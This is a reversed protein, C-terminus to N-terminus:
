KGARGLYNQIGVLLGEAIRDQYAPDILLAFEDPHIMFGVEVLCAPMATPRCLALNQYRCALDPFGTADVLSNKLTRAVESSQPHYFYSSTGHEKWPNRGDPLANNHVSVLLDADARVATKVREDLSPGEDESTRTMIVQAGEKELLRKFKLAMQLNVLSERVGSCGISGTESGGHGPDVCIRLGQLSAAGAALRPPHKIRLKLSTNEYEVKYGWQRDGKLAITLEYIGDAPQKWHLHDIMETGAPPDSAQPDAPSIWDTDSTAGYLKLTLKNPKLCQEIQYPLRQNLPLSVYDGYADRGTNVTRVASSPLAATIFPQQGVPPASEFVLEDKDIWVHRNAAYLCRVHRGQWGDALLRVGEALPTTRAQGPGLRVITNQSRTRALWPQGIVTLRAKAPVMIEKTGNRLCFKPTLGNWRDDPAVKYFGIYLDARAAPLRQFVQGYAADLGVNVAQAQPSLCTSKGKRRQGGKPAQRRAAGRAKARLAQSPWLGLKDDDLIVEVKCQPTARVSFEVIDGPLVGKDEAPTISEPILTFRGAPVPEPPMERQVSITRSVDSGLAPGNTLKLTFTNRGPNLPVVHAFYGFRNLRVPQGDVTLSSGPPAAGILFSSAASILAGDKPYVLLIANSSKQALARPAAPGHDFPCLHVIMVLTLFAFFSPLVPLLAQTHRRM